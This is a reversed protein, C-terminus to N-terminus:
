VSGAYFAGHEFLKDYIKEKPAAVSLCTNRAEFLWSTSIERMVNGEGKPAAEPQLVLSAPHIRTARLWVCGEDLQM